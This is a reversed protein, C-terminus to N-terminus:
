SKYIRKINDIGCAEIEALREYASTKTNGSAYSDNVYKKIRDRRQAPTECNATEQSSLLNRKEAWQVWPVSIGNKESWSIWETVSMRDASDPDSQYLEKIDEMEGVIDDRNDKNISLGDFMYFHKEGLIYYTEPVIGKLLWIALDVDWTKLRLYHALRDGFVLIADAPYIEWYKRLPKASRADGLRNLEDHLIVIKCEAIKLKYREWNKDLLEWGCFEIGAPPKQFESEPDFSTPLYDIEAGAPDAEFVKWDRAFIEVACGEAPFGMVHCLNEGFPDDANHWIPSSCLGSPLLIHLTIEDHAALHILDGKPLSLMKAAEELQYYKKKIQM